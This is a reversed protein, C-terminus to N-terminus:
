SFEVLQINGNRACIQMLTEGNRQTNVINFLSNIDINKEKHMSTLIECFDKADGNECINELSNWLYDKDSAFKDLNLTKVYSSGEEMTVFVALQKLINLNRM